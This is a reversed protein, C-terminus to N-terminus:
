WNASDKSRCLNDDQSSASSEFEPVVGHLVPCGQCNGPLEESIQQYPVVGNLFPCGHCNGPLEKSIQQYPEQKPMGTEQNSM